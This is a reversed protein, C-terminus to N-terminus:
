ATLFTQLVCAHIRWGTKACAEGLTELFQKRDTDDAFVPEGHSGRAMIRRRGPAAAPCAHYVAGPYQIRLPRAM